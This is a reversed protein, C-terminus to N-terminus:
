GRSDTRQPSAGRESRRGLEGLLAHASCPELSERACPLRLVMVPRSDGSSIRCVESRAGGRGGETTRRGPSRFRDGRARAVALGGVERTRSSGATFVRLALNAGVAGELLELAPAELDTWSGIGYVALSEAAVSKIRRRGGCTPGLPRSIVYRWASMEGLDRVESGHTEQTALSDRDSEFHDTRFIEAFPSFRPVREEAPPGPLTCAGGRYVVVGWVPGRSRSKAATTATM